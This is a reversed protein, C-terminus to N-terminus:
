GLTAPREWAEGRVHTDLFGLFTEYWVQANGRGQIWHGEDPFYLYRHRTRGEADRPTASFEHLDYWLAQGQAIPVRYDKDGHIVLMPAVIDGVFDKPNYLANQERMSREWGANDTTHGMTDTDWLSAHTILCRFRDGTHGAVWNAMYGGYSGGAFATRDADIDDRAVTVDTLAIIDTFPAGGLEHQGRDIMAQGYGTSIAPDPLLVAYGAAVFPGPNWRYTWANWSGWPGGHAFVVLPHPGDGEPLRLWARLDTGDEAAATVETLAGEQPVADAPNPLESVVGTAPDIRVPHPAVAIGSASAIVAGGAIAASTFALEQGPGGTLRQPAADELGGIWVSGRGHDDSTAVLTNEDLWVPDVWHDLEPWVPTSTGTTLDLLEITSSLSAEQTWTRSRGILARTGDPSFEGPEHEIQATGERLLRPPQAGVLDLLYLDSVGLLEGRSDAMAVLARSGARDVTWDGLRGPPMAVHRFHLVQKRAADDHADSSGPAGPGSAADAGGLASTTASAAAGHDGGRSPVETAEAWPLDEPLASMALVSRTPGLDQDWYRTPFDAHLAATVKAEGRQKSLRAHETEDAAQSHVELEAVLHGGALHLAGFGGPRAALERAEGRTPLAWLQADDAEEGDEGVRKATFFTTGDEAAAVAGISAEGRTLPVIREGELEVLASRYATGKANPSSVKALIRGGETTELGALRSADLLAEISALTM